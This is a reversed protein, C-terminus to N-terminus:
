RPRLGLDNLKHHTLTRTRLSRRALAKRADPDWLPITTKRPARFPFWNSKRAAEGALQRDLLAGLTHMMSAMLPNGYLKCPPNLITVLKIFELIRPLRRQRGRRVVPTQLPQSCAATCCFKLYREARCNGTEATPTLCALALQPANVRCPRNLCSGTPIAAALGAIEQLRFNKGGPLCRETYSANRRTQDAGGSFPANFLPTAYPNCRM